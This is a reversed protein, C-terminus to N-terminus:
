SDKELEASKTSLIKHKASILEIIQLAMIQAPTIPKNEDMPLPPDSKCKFDTSDDICDEIIIIVKAMVM